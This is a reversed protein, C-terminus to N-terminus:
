PAPSVALSQPPAAIKTGAHHKALAACLGIEETAQKLARPGNPISSLRSRIFQRYPAVAAANCRNRTGMGVVTDQTMAPARKLLADFHTKYWPWFSDGLVQQDAQVYLVTFLDRLQIDPKLTIARVETAIAPDSVSALAAFLAGRQAPDQNVTIEKQLRAAVPAGGERVWVSLASTLLDESVAKLALREAPADFAMKAVALLADRTYPVQWDVALLGVLKERLESDTAPEGAKPLVGLRTFAAQYIGAIRARLAEDGTPGLVEDRLFDFRGWLKSVVQAHPSSATAAAADLLANADAKGLAFAASVADLVALQEAASLSPMAAFLAKLDSAPLTFRYYGGANANPLVWTPCQDLAIIKETTDLLECQQTSGTATGLRLCVPVQWGRTPKAGPSGLPLYRSQKLHLSAKGDKCQPTVAVLPLGPQDLFTKIAKSFVEGKGSAAALAGILDDATAAGRAHQTMHAHVGRQFADKGIWNEFTALVGAGKEYTISDFAAAIDGTNRIPERIRRASVLSDENMAGQTARLQAIAFPADPFLESTIKAANWTAFAENLWIDDWWYPTVLNGFWQHSLEHTNVERFGNIAGVSSNEDLVLLSDVFTILGANEMAGFAFDPGALLDLKDFPYAIGFYNELGLVLKPTNALAYGLKPLTGKPGIVRLPIPTARVASPPISSTATVEWPGVAFAVLYTPLKETAAFSLTKTDGSVTESTQQTNAFALHQKPFSLSLTFPTKFRPEDFSPFARRAGISEMQTMLYDDAGRTVKYIGELDSSYVGSYDFSLTIDQAPLVRGFDVRAVGEANVQRYAVPSPKAVLTSVTVSTVTLDRGHLWLHDAPALLRVQLEARGHFRTSAPDVDFHLGYALPEATKPLLGTPVTSKPAAQASGTMLLLLACFSTVLRM